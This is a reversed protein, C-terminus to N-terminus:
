AYGRAIQVWSTDALSLWDEQTLPSAPKFQSAKFGSRSINLEKTVKELHLPQICNRRYCLHDAQMGGLLDGEVYELSLRHLYVTEGKRGGIRVVPYGDPTRAGMWLLCCGELHEPGEEVKIKALWSPKLWPLLM